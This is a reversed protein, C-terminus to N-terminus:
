SAVAARPSGSSNSLATTRRLALAVAIVAAMWTPSTAGGTAPLTGRRSPPASPPAVAVAPVVAALAAQVAALARVEGHGWATDPGPPGFDHATTTLIEQVQAPRLAPNAQLMMAIVAATYPAAASTGGFKGYFVRNNATALPDAQGPPPVAAEGQSAAGTVYRPAWIGAVPAAVDIAPGQSSYPALQGEGCAPDGLLEQGGDIAPCSAAVVIPETVDRAPPWVTNVGPGYNGAAFVMTIGADIAKRIIANLAPRPTFDAPDYGWTNTAIRIGGPYQPDDRHRIMYDYALFVSSMVADQQGATTVVDDTCCTGFDVIRAGPAVGRMDVGGQAAAGTGALVGAVSMGHTAAVGEVEPATQVIEDRIAESVVGNYLGAADFNLADIVQGSLDPHTGVGTDVVAVTVGSGDFGRPLPTTGSRVTGEGTQDATQYNGFRIPADPEISAVAPWTRVRDFVAPRARVIVADITSLPTAADAGADALRGLDAPGVHHELVVISTASRGDAVPPWGAGGPLVSALAILAASVM